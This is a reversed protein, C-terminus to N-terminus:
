GSVPTEEYSSGFIVEIGYAPQMLHGRGSIFHFNCATGPYHTGVQCYFGLIFVGDEDVTRHERHAHTDCFVEIESM